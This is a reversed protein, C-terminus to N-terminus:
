IGGRESIEKLICGRAGVVHTPEGPRCNCTPNCDLCSAKPGIHTGGQERSRFATHGTDRRHALGWANRHGARSFTLIEQRPCQLCVLLYDTYLHTVVKDRIQEQEAAWREVRENM